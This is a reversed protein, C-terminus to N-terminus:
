QGGLELVYKWEKFPSKKKKLKLTTHYLSSFYRRINNMIKIFEEPINNLDVNQLFFIVKDFEIHVSMFPKNM